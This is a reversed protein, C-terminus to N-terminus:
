ESSILKLPQKVKVKGVYLYIQICFDYLRLSTKKLRQRRYEQIQSYKWMGNMLYTINWKLGINQTDKEYRM